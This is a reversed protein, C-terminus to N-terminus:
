AQETYEYELDFVRKEGLWRTWSRRPSPTQTAHQRKEVPKRGENESLTFQSPRHIPQVLHREEGSRRQHAALDDMSVPQCMGLLSGPHWGSGMHGRQHRPAPRPPVM